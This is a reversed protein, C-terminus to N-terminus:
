DADTYVYSPYARVQATIAELYHQLKDESTCIYGVGSTEMGPRGARGFIQLVDLVSLDVFKGQGSDYLQTGKIVVGHAPLNVGWALTATCCLVKIVKADFLREMLNRDARLMGAHHIGFGSDYLQKMERNKSKGVDRRYFEFQPDEQCGFMDLEGEMTAFEKLSEASKVTDKRSHVFVMVQHGERVLESVIHYATKDLARKAAPSGAKGKVGLFHQELPVPRFSSDFFFLGARRSVRFGRYAKISKV